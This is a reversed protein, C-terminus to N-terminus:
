DIVRLSNSKKLQLPKILGILSIGKSTRLETSELTLSKAFCPFAFIM